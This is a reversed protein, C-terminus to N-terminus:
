GSDLVAGTGASTVLKAYRSLYGTKIKPEPPSKSPLQRAALPLYVYATPTIDLPVPPGESVGTIAFVSLLFAVTLGLLPVIFQQKRVHM